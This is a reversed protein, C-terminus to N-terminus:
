VQFPKRKPITCSVIVRQDRSTLLQFGLTKTIDDVLGGAHREKRLSHENRLYVDIPLIHWAYLVEGDPTTVNFPTVQNKAFGFAETDDVDHM